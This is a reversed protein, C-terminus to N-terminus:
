HLVVQYCAPWKVEEVHVHRRRQSTLSTSRLAQRGHLFGCSAALPNKHLGLRALGPQPTGVVSLARSQLDNGTLIPLRIELVYM